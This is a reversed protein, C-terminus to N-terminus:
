AHANKEINDHEEIKKLLKARLLNKKSLKSKLIKKTGKKSSDLNQPQKQSDLFSAAELVSAKRQESIDKRFKLSANDKHGMLLDCLEVYDFSATPTHELMSMIEDADEQPIGGNGYRIARALLDKKIYGPRSRSGSLVSFAKLVDAKSYRVEPRKMISLMLEEFTFELTDKIVDSEAQTSKVKAILDHVYADSSVHSDEHVSHLLYGLEQEDISGNNDLDIKRFIERFDSVQSVTLNCLEALNKNSSEEFSAQAANIRVHGKRSHPVIM